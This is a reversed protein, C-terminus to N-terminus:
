GDALVENVLGGYAEAIKSGSDYIFISQGVASTEAAKVSVPIRTEYIKVIKGYQQRLTEETARSLNTRNDVLTLLLTWLNLFFKGGKAGDGSTHDRSKVSTLKM